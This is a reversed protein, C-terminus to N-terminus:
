MLNTVDWNKISLEVETAQKTTAVARVQRQRGRGTKRKKSASSPRHWLPPHLSTSGPPRDPSRALTIEGLKWQFFYPFDPIEGHFISPKMHNLWSLWPFNPSQGDSYIQYPSKVHNWWWIEPIKGHSITFMNGVKTSIEAVKQYKKISEISIHNLIYHPYFKYTSLRFISNSMDHSVPQHNWVNKKINWFIHSTMRGNVWIKWLPQFGGVLIYPPYWQRHLNSWGYHPYLPFKRSFNVYPNQFHRLRLNHGHFTTATLFGKPLGVINM